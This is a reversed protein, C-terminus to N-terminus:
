LNRLMRELEKRDAIRLVVAKKVTLEFVARYGGIRLRYLNKHGVLKKIKPPGPWPRAELIKLHELIERATEKELGSLDRFARPALEVLFSL